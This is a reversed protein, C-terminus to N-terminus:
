LLSTSVYNSSPSPLLLSSSLSDLSQFSLVCHTYWMSKPIAAQSLLRSRRLLFIFLRRAPSTLPHGAHRCDEQLMSLEWLVAYRVHLCWLLPTSQIVLRHSHSQVALVEDFPTRSRKRGREDELRPEMLCCWVYLVLTWMRAWEVIRYKRGMLM